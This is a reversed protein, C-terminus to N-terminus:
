NRKTLAQALKYVRNKAVKLEQATQAIADKTSVGSNTKDEIVQVIESDGVKHASDDVPGIVVTLEGKLSNDALDEHVSALTGRYFTQYVKTLERAVMVLRDPGCAQMLESLTREIRKPSEYLVVLGSFESLAQIDEVRGSGKKDLFGLFMFQKAFFGSAAVATSIATPGPIVDVVYGAEVVAKVVMSGPDSITPMGADTVLGVKNGLSLEECVAVAGSRERHSEIIIVKPMELGLYNMLKALRRSDECAIVDASTLAVRGRESLDALNGIPTGIIELRGSM